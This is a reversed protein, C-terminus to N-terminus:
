TWLSIRKFLDIFWNSRKGEKAIYYKMVFGFDYDWKLRKKSQDYSDFFHWEVGDIFGYIVGWHNDDGNKFYLGDADDLAWAYVSCGLPSQRLAEKMLEQKNEGNGKFVWEYKVTWNELWNLGRALLSGTMPKPSYYEDVTKVSKDFPLLEEPIAGAEKRITDIVKKPSNGPPWTDAMVGTFRESFDEIVGYKRRLLIELCNLTGYGTCNATEFNNRAQHEFKPLYSDWQGDDQLTEYPFKFGLEQSGFIYDEPDDQPAIFGHGKNM